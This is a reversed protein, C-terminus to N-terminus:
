LWFGLVYLEIGTLGTLGMSIMGVRGWRRHLSSFAGPEPPIGIDSLM